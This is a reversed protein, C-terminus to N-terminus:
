PLGTLFCGVARTFPTRVPQGALVASLSDELDRRTPVQRDVGLDTYRDDIRGRYVLTGRGDFVAAEPSVTAGALRVLAHASDRLARGNLGFASMHRTIAESSDAAYPYVLWFRVGQRAFAAEMRQIDPAYRNSIPCETTVFLMVTARVAPQPELPDVPRGKLDPVRVAAAAVTAGALLM